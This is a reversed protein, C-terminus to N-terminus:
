YSSGRNDIKDVLVRVKEYVLILTKVDYSCHKVIVDMAKKAEENSDMAAKQWLRLELPTKKVPIELFDIIAALSNRGLKLHRRALLVPDVFKKWRVSPSLGYQLCKANLFGKDFWQGNHAVLIDYQKLEHVVREILEKNDSKNGKWSKFQDARIITQKDSHYSQIVACLVIGSDAYFSTTELDFIGVRM